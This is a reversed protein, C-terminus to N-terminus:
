STVGVIISTGALFIPGGSDGNCSGGNNVTGNNASHHIYNYGAVASNDTVRKPTAWYRVLEAKVVPIWDQVGYGVVDFTLNKYKPGTMRAAGYRRAVLTLDANVM